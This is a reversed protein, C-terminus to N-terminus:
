EFREFWIKWRVHVCQSFGLDRLFNSSLLKWTQSYYRNVSVLVSHLFLLTFLAGPVEPKQTTRQLIQLLFSLDQAYHILVISTEQGVSRDAKGLHEEDLLSM